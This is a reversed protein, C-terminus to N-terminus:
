LVDPLGTTVSLYYLKQAMSLLSFLNYDKVQDTNMLSHTELYM